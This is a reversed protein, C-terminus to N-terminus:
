CCDTAYYTLRKAAEVSTLHEALKHRWVQFKAIPKGQTVRTTAYSRAAELAAQGIGVAMAAAGIRGADLVKMAMKFGACIRGRLWSSWSSRSTANSRIWM